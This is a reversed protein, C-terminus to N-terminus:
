CGEGFDVGFLRLLPLYIVSLVIQVPEPLASAINWDNLVLDAWVLGFGLLYVVLIGLLVYAVKMFLPTRKPDAPQESDDPM